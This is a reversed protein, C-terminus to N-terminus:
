KHTTLILQKDESIEVDMAQLPKQAPGKIDKGNRDFVSGHCPCEFDSGAEEVRCGLHTCILRYAIIGDAENYIVAPIDMRVTRSGVPFDNVDGLDFRSAREALPEYSFYRVLGGLGLLGAMWLLLRVFNRRSLVPHTKM